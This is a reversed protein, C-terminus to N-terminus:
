EFMATAVRELQLRWSHHHETAGLLCHLSSHQGAGRPLPAQHHAGERRVVGPMCAHVCALMCIFSYGSSCSTLLLHCACVIYPACSAGGYTTSCSMRRASRTCATAEERSSTPLAISVFRRSVASLETRRAAPSIQHQCASLFLSLSPPLSLHSTICAHHCGLRGGSPLLPVRM